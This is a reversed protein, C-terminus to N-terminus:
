EEVALLPFAHGLSPLGAVKVLPAWLYKRGRRVVPKGKEGFSCQLQAHSSLCHVSPWVSSEGYTNVLDADFEQTAFSVITGKTFVVNVM